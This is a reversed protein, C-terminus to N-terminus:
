LGLEALLPRHDSTKASGVETRLPRIDRTWVYDVRKTPAQPTLTYGFGAHTARYADTLAAALRRHRPDFPQTNFDGCVVVPGPKAEVRRVIEALEEDRLQRKREVRQLFPLQPWWDPEYGDPVMHVNLLRVERGAVEVAVEQVNWHGGYHSAFLQTEKRRLPRKSLLLLGEGQYAHYGPLENALRLGYQHRGHYHAEQLCAVDPDFSRITQAVATLTPEPKELAEFQGVNYTLVRLDAAGSVPRGLCLGLPGFLQGFAVVGSLAAAPWAKKRIAWLAVLTTPVVFLQPIAMSLVWGVPGEDGSRMLLADIWLTAASAALSTWALRRM